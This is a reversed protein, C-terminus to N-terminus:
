RRGLPGLPGFPGFPGFPGLGHLLEIAFAAAHRSAAPQWRSDNEADKGALLDSIGRVVLADLGPNVYAGELFGHGETEVALADSAYRDLMEAVASKDHAIVKSGTVIPKVFCTPPPDPPQPRIRRQWQKERAVLRARQLLLHSPRQIRMRPEYGELTSKGWEYDYILEAVVVDGLKVDKRGGAVGLFLAVQPEFTRVARELQVGATTSGPGTQNLAVQWSGAVGPLAGLEYLSGREEHQRIPGDLYDRVAAYEVELATCIVVWPEAERERAPGTRSRVRAPGTQSRVRAAALVEGADRSRSAALDLRTIEDDLREEFWTALRLDESLPGVASAPTPLNLAQRVNQDIIGVTHRMAALKTRMGVAELAPRPLGSAQGAERDLEDRLRRSPEGDDFVRLQHRLRAAHVLHRTLPAPAGDGSTWLFLDVRRESHGPAVAIIRRLTRTDRADPGIEWFRIEATGPGPLEIADWHQWWGPQTPDPAHARVLDLPDAGGTLALFLRAQGLERGPTGASLLREWGQELDSWARACAAGHPPAMMATLCLLDHNTWALAQWVSESTSEAAAILGRQDYPGIYEAPLDRPVALVGIAHDLGFQSTAASWVSRLRDWSGNTGTVLFLHALLAPSTLGDGGM